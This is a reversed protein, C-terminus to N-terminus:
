ERGITAALALMQEKFAHHRYSNAGGADCFVLIVSASPYHHIGFNDWWWLLNEAVFAATEHSTGITIFGENRQLDYIGHPIVKGTALHEYDHDYVKVQGQSFCKGARYLNGLREKKKCDMSIMPSNVSMALILSFIIQFQQERAAYAGTPLNKGQKRYKFGMLRLKTKVQRHSIPTGHEEMFIGAFEKPELDRWFESSDTPCGAKHPNILAGLLTATDPFLAFNKGAM